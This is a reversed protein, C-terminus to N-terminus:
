EGEYYNGYKEPTMMYRSMKVGDGSISTDLDWQHPWITEDPASNENEGKGAYVIHICEVWGDNNNDFQSVDILNVINSMVERALERPRIDDGSTSNAGYYARNHSVTYPGIVTTRVDLQNYSAQM